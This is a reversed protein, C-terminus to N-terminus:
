PFMESLFTSLLSVLIWVSIARANRELHVSQPFELSIHHHFCFLSQVEQSLFSTTMAM